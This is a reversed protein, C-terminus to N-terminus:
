DKKKKKSTSRFTEALNARHKTTPDTSQKGENICEQTVGEYGKKKCYSTFSGPKEVAEQMWQKKKKAEVVMQNTNGSSAQREDPDEQIKLGIPQEWPAADCTMNSCKGNEYLRSGCLQCRHKPFKPQNKKREQWYKENEGLDGGLFTATKENSGFSSTKSKSKVQKVCREYKEPDEKKDVNTHCVAWPNADYHEGKYTVGKKKGKKAEKEVEAMKDIYAPTYFKKM